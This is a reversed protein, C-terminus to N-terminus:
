NKKLINRIYEQRHNKYNQEIDNKALGYLTKLPLEPLKEKKPPRKYLKDVHPM